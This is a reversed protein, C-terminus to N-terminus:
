PLSREFYLSLPDYIYPGFPGIRQFGFAKYLRIAREQHVGTELRLTNIGHQQTYDALHQLLKQGLGKGQMNPRVYMRKLEGYGEDFFQVGGCGALEGESRMVFFHVAQQILKDVSYGHRSEPPYHPSLVGELEAILTQADATDPREREITIM